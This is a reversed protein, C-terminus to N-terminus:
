IMAPVYAKSHRTLQYLSVVENQVSETGTSLRQQWSVSSTM